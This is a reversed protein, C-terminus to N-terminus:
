FLNAIRWIQGKGSCERKCQALSGCESPMLRLDEVAVSGGSAQTPKAASQSVAVFSDTRAIKSREARTRDTWEQVKKVAVRASSRHEVLYSQIEAPSFEWEPILSASERTYRKVTEDDEAPQKPDLIEGKSQKFIMYFLRFTVGKDTNLLKSRKDVRSARILARDLYDLHNTTIILLRSDKVSVRDLANLLDSLLLK